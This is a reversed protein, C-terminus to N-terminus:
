HRRARTNQHLFEFKNFVVEHQIPTMYDILGVRDLLLLMGSRDNKGLSVIIQENRVVFNMPFIIYDINKFAWGGTENYCANCIIPEPTMHTIGFPPMPDFLYAGMYYTMTQFTSEFDHSHFFTLYKTGHKTDILKPPTSGHPPGYDWFRPVSESPVFKTEAVSHLKVSDPLKGDQDNAFISRGYLIRHPEVSFIFLVDEEEDPFFPITGNSHGNLFTLNYTPVNIRLKSFDFVFPMWNKQSGQSEHSIDLRTGPSSLTYFADISHSYFMESLQFRQEKRGVTAVHFVFFRGRFIFLRPDGLHLQQRVKPPVHRDFLEFNDVTKVVKWDKATKGPSMVYYMTAFRSDWSFVVNPESTFAKEDFIWDEMGVNFAVVPLYMSDRIFMKTQIASVNM